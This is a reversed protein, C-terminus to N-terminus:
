CLTVRNSEGRSRVSMVRGGGGGEEEEEEEEGECVDGVEMHEKGEAWDWKEEKQGRKNMSKKIENLVEKWQKRARYM